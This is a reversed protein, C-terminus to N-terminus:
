CYVERRHPLSLISLLIEETELCMSKSSLSKLFLQLYLALSLVLFPFDGAALFLSAVLLWLWSGSRFDQLECLCQALAYRVPLNKHKHMGLVQHYLLFPRKQLVPVLFFNHYIYVPLPFDNGAAEGQGCPFVSDDHVPLSTIRVSTSLLGSNSANM